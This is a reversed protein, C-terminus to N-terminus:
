PGLPHQATRCQFEDPAVQGLDLAQGNVLVLALVANGQYTVRGSVTVWKVDADPDSTSNSSSGCGSVTLVFLIVMFGLLINKSM